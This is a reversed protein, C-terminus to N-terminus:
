RSVGVGHLYVLEGGLFAGLGVLLVGVLLVAGYLRRQGAPVEGRHWGKWFLLGVFVAVVLWGNLEHLDFDGKAAPPVPVTNAAFYGSVVTPLLSLTGFITLTGGSRMARERDTLQGWAEWLGGVILLAVSFHVFAPHFLHLM